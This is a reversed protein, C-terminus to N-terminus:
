LSKWYNKQIESVGEIIRRTVQNCQETRDAIDGLEGRLAKLVMRVSDRLGELDYGGELAIVVRGECCEDAIEMLIRTLESFGEPTVRMGGLPDGYYIDFGASILVMEPKFELAIPELLQKFITQYEADGQGVPLTVNVTFGEGKGTGTEDIDGTGPYYPFQHTSFYLVQPDDYFSNQTGNGHHLDWDVILIRQRSAKRLAWRAGIAINNFLCFGMARNREAHHGPPRVLAFANNIRGALVEEVCNLVGGAALKAALYSKPSTSTDPDLQVSKGETGAVREIYSGDHVMGIEEGAAERSPIQECSKSFEEDEVMQYIYKLREPSEPHYAGMDHDLYRNDVVIGTKGM